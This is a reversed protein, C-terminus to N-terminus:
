PSWTHGNDWATTGDNWFFPNYLPPPAPVPGSTSWIRGTDFRSLGDDWYWPASTLVGPGPQLLKIRLNVLLVPEATGKGSEGRLYLMQREVPPLVLCHYIEGFEDRLNAVSGTQLAALTRYDEIARDIDRGGFRDVNGEGLVIQYTRMQRVAVRTQARPMLVRMIAPTTPTGNGDLRMGLRRGVWEQTAAILSQPSDNAIGFQGYAGQEANVNVIIEAGAGLNDGEVDVQLMEKPTAPHGWDQGPIFLSWNQAYRYEADQLPNETRALITFSLSFNAGARDGAGIWLRPPSTLGSVYLLYCRQGPLYVLGGHWLMPSPGLASPSPGYGYGYGFPSVGADGQMIDRGWCIYVDAGNDVAVIQWPGYTTSATIKGRIPTENPLGHGPTVTVLRGSAAGSVDLRFLGSLHASYIHGGSSHGAIGNEDDIGSAFFPMLNPVFGTVGDLDHLGNTKAVYVHTQDGILRNIGYTTDGIPISAGWNAATLPASAVNRVSSVGDQGIMQFAGTTGLPGSSQYWAQALSKRNLGATNTWAGASKQWLLGPPSQSTTGLSTGVYLNSAFTTMSWASVGSGLDLDTVPQGAGGPLRTVYRGAGIYLDGGFDQACRPFDTGTLGLTNVFPGPLVMRPFRADVNQGYAYTGGLLRWSYLAGLHFTDMVLPEESIDTPEGTLQPVYTEEDGGTAQGNLQGRGAASYQYLTYDRGNINISDRLPFFPHPM